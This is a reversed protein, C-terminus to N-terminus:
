SNRIKETQEIEMTKYAKTMTDVKERTQAKRDESDKAMDGKDRTLEDTKEMAKMLCPLHTAYRLSVPLQTAM